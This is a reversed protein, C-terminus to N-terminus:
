LWAYAERLVERGNREVLDGHALVIREIDWALMRDVQRRAAARDRVAWYELWGKGPARNGML